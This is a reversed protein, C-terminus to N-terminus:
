ISFVYTGGKEKRCLYDIKICEAFNRLASHIARKLFLLFFM